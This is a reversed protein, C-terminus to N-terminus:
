QAPRFVSIIWSVNPSLTECYNVYQEILKIKKNKSHEVKIQTLLEKSNTAHVTFSFITLLLNLLLVKKM